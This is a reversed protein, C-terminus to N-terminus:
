IFACVMHASHQNDMFHSAVHVPLLNCLIQRNSKQLEAMEIKEETAQAILKWSLWYMNANYFFM